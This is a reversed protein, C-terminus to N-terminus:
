RLLNSSYTSFSGASVKVTTSVTWRQDCSSWTGSGSITSQGYTGLSTVFNQTPITITFNSANSWDITATLGTVVPDASVQAGGFALNSLTLNKILITAATGATGTPTWNSITTTYATSTAGSSVKTDITQTYNGILNAQIVDCYGQTTFQYTDQGNVFSYGGGLKVTITDAKRSSPYGSFLGTFRITDQYKGAKITVSTPPTSYQTGVVATKSTITVPITRDSSSVTTIGVPILFPANTSKVFYTGLGPNVFEVATVSTKVFSNDKKCANLGISMIFAGLISYLVFTSKKTSFLTFIKQM